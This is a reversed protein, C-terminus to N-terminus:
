KALTEPWNLVVTLPLSQAAALSANLVFGQGNPM